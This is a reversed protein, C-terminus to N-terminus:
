ERAAQYAGEAEREAYRDIWALGTPLFSPAAMAALLECPHTELYEDPIRTGAAAHEAGAALGYLRETAEDLVMEDTVGVEEVNLGLALAVAAHTAEHLCLAEFSDAPLRDITSTM